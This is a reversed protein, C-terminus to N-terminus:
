DQKANTLKEIRALLEEDSLGSYPSKIKEGGSTVDMNDGWNERDLRKLWELSAKWEGKAAANNINALHRMKGESKARSITQLFQVYEGSKDAKGRQKWKMFAEYSIGAVICADVYSAGLGIADTLTKITEQTLKSPRGATM